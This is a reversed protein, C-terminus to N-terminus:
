ADPMPLSLFFYCCSPSFFLGPTQGLILHSPRPTPTIGYQPCADGPSCRRFLHQSFQFLFQSLSFTFGGPPPLYAQDPCPDAHHPNGSTVSNSWSFNLKVQPLPPCTSPLIAHKPRMFFLPRCMRLAMKGRATHSVGIIFHM